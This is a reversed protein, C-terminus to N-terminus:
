TVFTQWSFSVSIRLYETWQLQTWLSAVVYVIYICIYIYMYTYIDISHRNSGPHKGTKTAIAVETRKWNKAMWWYQYIPWFKEGATALSLIRRSTQYIELAIAQWLLLFCCCFYFYFCFSFFFFRFQLSINPDFM